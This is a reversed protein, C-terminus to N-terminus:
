HIRFCSQLRCAWALNRSVFRCKRMAENRAMRVNFDVGMFRPRELRPNTAICAWRSVNPDNFAEGMQGESSETTDSSSQKKMEEGQGQTGQKKMEDQSEPQGQEPQGQEPQGQEPQGQEQKEPETQAQEKQIVEGQTQEKAGPQPTTVAKEKDAAFGYNAITMLIAMACLITFKM